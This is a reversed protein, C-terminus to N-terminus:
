IDINAGGHKTNHMRNIEFAEFCTPCTVPFTHM